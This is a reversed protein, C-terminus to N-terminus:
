CLSHYGVAHREHHSFVIHLEMGVSQFKVIPFKTHANVFRLM